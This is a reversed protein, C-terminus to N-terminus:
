RNAATSAPAGLVKRFVDNAIRMEETTGISIRAYNTLPPFDRGVMVGLKECAARFDKAPRRVDVLLFNAQSDTATFGLDSFTRATSELAARTVDRQKAVHATDQISAAAAAASLVNM